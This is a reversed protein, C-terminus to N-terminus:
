HAHGGRGTDPMDVAPMYSVQALLFMFIAIGLGAAIAGLNGHGFFAMGALFLVGLTVYAMQKRQYSDRGKKYKLFDDKCVVLRYNKASRTVNRKIWRLGLIVADDRVALGEREKGCIICMNRKAMCDVSIM